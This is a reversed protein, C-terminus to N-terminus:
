SPRVKDGNVSTLLPESFPIHFTKNFVKQPVEVFFPVIPFVCWSHLRRVLYSASVSTWLPLILTKLSSFHFSPTPHRRGKSFGPKGQGTPQGRGEEMDFRVFRLSPPPRTAAGLYSRPQVGGGWWGSWWLPLFPALYSSSLFCHSLMKCEQFEVIGGGGEEELGSGRFRVRM